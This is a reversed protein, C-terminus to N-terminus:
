PMCTSRSANRLQQCIEEKFNSSWRCTIREEVGSGALEQHEPQYPVHYRYLRKGGVRSLIRGQEKDNLYIREQEKWEQVGQEEANLYIQLRKREM